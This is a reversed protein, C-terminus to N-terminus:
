RIVDTPKLYLPTEPKEILCNGIALADIGPHDAVDLKEIVVNKNAAALNALDKASAPDRTTAIVRWGRAAYQRVFELGIGRNAGTILVTRQGQAGGAAGVAASPGEAVATLAPMALFCYVPVFISYLGYWEDWILAYQVPLVIFFVALLAWHDGRRTETLTLFERLCGFSVFAFLVIVGARGFLFAIGIVAVMVWWAKIRANLNEVQPSPAGEARRALLWGAVSALILVSGIGLFLALTQEGFTM